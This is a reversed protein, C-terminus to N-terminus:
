FPSLVTERDRGLVLGLFLPRPPHGEGEEFGM